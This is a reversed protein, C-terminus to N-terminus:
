AQTRKANRALVVARIDAWDDSTMPTSEGSEIGKLIEAELVNRAKRKQDIRILDCVYESASGYGSRKAQEQVFRNLSEPLAINMTHM